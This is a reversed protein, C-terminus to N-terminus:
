RSLRSQIARSPVNWAAASRSFMVWGVIEARM